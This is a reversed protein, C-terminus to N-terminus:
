NGWGVGWSNRILAYPLNTATDVGYGVAQMGHNVAVGACDTPKYVGDKYGYFSNTVAFAVMLPQQLLAKKFAAVSYDGAVYASGTGTLVKNTAKGAALCSGNVGTSGSTYPYDSATICGNNTM